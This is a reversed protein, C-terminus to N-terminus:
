QNLAEGLHKEFPLPGISEPDAETDFLPTYGTALYLARAEPQRPGTTLFIRRYGRLAAERELEAVVRRALGRRRRASHTWIRGWVGDPPVGMLEATALDYLRFAGGAVPEGRELLLLLLGGHPETFEDDPYRAIEAHADRGYRRSYEQGLETLLPEVRPDSVPVHIFTLEPVSTM